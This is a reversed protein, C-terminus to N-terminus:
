ITVVDKKKEKRYRYIHFILFIIRVIAIGIIFVAIFFYWFNNTHNRVASVKSDYYVGDYEYCSVTDGVEYEEYNYKYYTDIQYEKGDILVNAYYKTECSAKRCNMEQSFDEIVCAKEVIDDGIRAETEKELNDMKGLFYNCLVFAGVSWIVILLYLKRKSYRKKM